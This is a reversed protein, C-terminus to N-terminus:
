SKEKAPSSKNIVGAKSLLRAVTDSPQAGQGLWNRAKDEDISFTEPNTLPNYHGIIDIFAGDRPSCSEAVVLRYHPKKPSGM